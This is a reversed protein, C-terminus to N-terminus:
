NRWYDYIDKTVEYEMNKVKRNPQKMAWVFMSEILEELNTGDRFELMSKAKTHDCYAHKVEHRPEGHEIPVEYGYKKGVKQVAEAVENLTFHKDAGINFIEGDYETLLRDFPEMYYKIDSFARTQEGDGYVLIPQGNLTKRIFIGIVNRYKDWINQYIGLVNHPRVINYRLGFQEHALKLDCEVAYKAIGYPDIPQPRKDETFPPEQEGYVAMSSTFIFKTDHKICENILNASCILNNRYNFNRIFPSLGEAAYAAFHVLVEPKHEEFLDVIKKRRELNLKVFSFNEGKTVFAKYGGSLDDIGIVEHGNALLHRTYNAGLLGACGTVFIKM